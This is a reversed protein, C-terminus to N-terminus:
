LMIFTNTYWEAIQQGWLVAIIAGAILFPGFPIKSKASLKKNALGPISFILGLISAIFLSLMANVTSGILLGTLLGLSIDGGGIWKGKSIYFLVLFLGSTVLTAGIIDIAQSLSRGAIFQALTLIFVGILTPHLIKNPLLFWKADYIALAILGVLGVLLTTLTLWGLVNYPNISAYSLVFLIATLLEVLPYQPSIKAKCYRCKGKLSLWSFVPVLDKASLTHKCDPCMSRGKLVSYEAKNKSNLKIPEGDDDIQQRVRWAWANIFSGFLIGLSFLVIFPLTSM